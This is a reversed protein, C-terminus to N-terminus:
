GVNVFATVRIAGAEILWQEDRELAEALGGYLYPSL